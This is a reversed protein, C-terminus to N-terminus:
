PGLFCDGIIGTSINIVFRHQEAQSRTGYANDYAWVQSNLANFVSERRFSAKGAFHVSDPLSHPKLAKSCSGTHLNWISRIIM